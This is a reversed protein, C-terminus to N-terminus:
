ENGVLVIKTGDPSIAIRTIGSIGQESLDAVEKWSGGRQWVFLKSGEAMIIHNATLWAYDESSGLASTLSTKSKTEPNMSVIEWTDKSKDMFSFSDSGPIKHLSRGIREGIIESSKKSVLQMTIPNGLVFSVLQKSNLWTHYGIVLESNIPKSIGKLNYEYLLQLGTTDLRISSIKKKGPIQTPSYESGQLTNTIIQLDGSEIFYRAIETQNAVTRAYLISKSDSWFSPQNDYGPNNSINKCAGISWNSGASSISALYVETGTQGKTLTICAIWMLCIIALRM